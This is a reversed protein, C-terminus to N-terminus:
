RLWNRYLAEASSRWNHTAKGDWGDWGDWGNAPYPM